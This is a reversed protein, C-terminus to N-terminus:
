EPPRRQVGREVLTIRKLQDYIRQIKKVSAPSGNNWHIGIPPGGNVLHLRRRGPRFDDVGYRQVAFEFQAYSFTGGPEELLVAPDSLRGPGAQISLVYEGITLPKYTNNWGVVRQLKVRFDGKRLGKEM